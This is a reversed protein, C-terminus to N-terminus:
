SAGKQGQLVGRAFDVAEERSGAIVFPKADMMRALVFRAAIHVLRNGGIFVAVSSLWDDAFMSQMERRTSVDPAQARTLDTVLGYPRKDSVLESLKERLLRVSFVTQMPTEHWLVIGPELWRVCNRIAEV